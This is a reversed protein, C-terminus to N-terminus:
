PSNAFHCSFLPEPTIAFYSYIM